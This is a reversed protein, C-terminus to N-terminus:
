RRLCLENFLLDQCRKLLCVGNRRHVSPQELVTMVFSSVTSLIHKELKASELQEYDIVKDKRISKMAYLRKKTKHEVLFVKGFSGIGLIKLIKVDEFTTDDDSERSYITSSRGSSKGGSSFQSDEDEQEDKTSGSGSTEEDQIEDDKMPLSIKFEEHDTLIGDKLM